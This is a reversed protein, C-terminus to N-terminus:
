IRQVQSMLAHLVSNQCVSMVSINDLRIIADLVSMEGQFRSAIGLQASSACPHAPIMSAM